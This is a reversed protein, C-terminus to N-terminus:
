KEATFFFRRFGLVVGGDKRVSYITKAREVIANEFEEGRAKGLFNLYPRLRTGKVWEVLAKHNDLRHYYKTEWVDFSSACDELIDFYELPTLTENPQLKVNEIGWKAEAAVESILKFLPEEGNMPMQDALVGGENLKDMLAPILTHHDPIWQLCANSFLLDYKGELARAECFQFKMGPHEKQAREIMGPSNDIGVIDACPFVSKLVATSNGPGCGIDVITKPHSSILRVALDVAPQTRQNRFKLYQGANWDAM